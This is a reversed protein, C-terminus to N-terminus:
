CSFVAHVYLAKRHKMRVDQDTMEERWTMHITSPKERVGLPRSLFPLQDEAVVKDAVEDTLSSPVERQKGKSDM